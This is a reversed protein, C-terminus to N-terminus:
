KRLNKKKEAVPAFWEMQCYTGRYHRTDIKEIYIKDNQLAYKEQENTRFKFIEDYMPQMRERNLDFYHHQGIYRFRACLSAQFADGKLGQPINKLKKVPVSALYEATGEGFNYNRALGIYLVDPDTANKISVHDNNWFERAMKPTLDALDRSPLSYLRGIVHFKPVMVIEPGFLVGNETKKADFLQLPPLIKVIKGTQRLKGPTIGFERKFSRIYSEEFEFGYDLAVDLVNFDKKLLDDLSASLKRSRIYNGITRDFAFKFLRQLHISSLSYKEALTDANVNEKLNNEIDELINELLEKPKLM